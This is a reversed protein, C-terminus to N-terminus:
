AEGKWPPTIEVTEINVIPVEMLEAALRANAVSLDVIAKPIPPPPQGRVVRTSHPMTRQARSSWFPPMFIGTVKAYESRWGIEGPIVRGWMEITGWVSATWDFDIISADWPDRICLGWFGCQCVPSPPDGHPMVRGLEDRLKKQRRGDGWCESRNEGKTWPVAQTMGIPMLYSRRETTYHEIIDDENIALRDIVPIFSGGPGEEWVMGLAQTGAILLPPGVPVDETLLTWARVAVVVGLVDPITEDEWDWSGFPGPSM